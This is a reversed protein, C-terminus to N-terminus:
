SIGGIDVSAYYRILNRLVTEQVVLVSKCGPHRMSLDELSSLLALLTVKAPRGSALSANRWAYEPLFGMSLLLGVRLDGSRIM